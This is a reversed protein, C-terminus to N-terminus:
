PLLQVRYYQQSSVAANTGSATPGNALIDPPLDTWNTDLLNTKSQLRYSQNSISSWTIVMNTNTFVASLIVPASSLVTLVANSSVPHGFSNSVIVSYSGADSLSVSPINYTSSTAGSIPVGDKLWRFSPSTGIAASTFSATTGVQNTRSIPQLTIIPDIVTLTAPLNNTAIGVLNSVTVTYNGDDAGRVNSITLNTTTVGDIRVGNFLAVGDKYWRYSLPGAGTMAVTFSATTGANITMSSPQLMILPTDPLTVTVDAMAKTFTEPFTFMDSTIGGHTYPPVSDFNNDTVNIKQVGDFYVVLNSSQVSLTVTHWNTGVSPLSVQQMPVFSWTTWAEFKVLKLVAAGGASGEPYVWAAYHAGTFPDLRAGIGGGYANTTSFQMRAQVIYDTWAANPCYAYGYSNIASSSLLTGNTVAWTGLLPIWRGFLGSGFPLNLDDFFLYGPPTVMITATAPVSNTQGDLVVFNFSDVGIFAPDPNYTFAGNSVVTATGHAPATLQAVTLNTGGTGPLASALLGPSGANLTSGQQTSYFGSQAVPPLSYRVQVNTVSTGARVKITSGTVRYRNTDTLVNNTFVQLGYFAPSSAQIEVATNTDISGTISLTTVLSNGNTSFAPVVQVNTRNTWWQYIAISNASWIKPNALTYNVYESALSGAPGSGDSPSHSYFNILAGLGFYFDVLAHLSNTNFGDEMAQGIQNGVFVDSVPLSLMPYRKGSTQTSLTWHPFPGLKDDGAIQMGLQEQIQLSGERTANFYPAVWLRVGNSTGLGWGQLDSISNSISALAYAQGNTYGPPNLDLLEDPGWHWYDYSNTTLPPVYVNPNTFGGNHSAITANYNSVARQLSAVTASPNPMNERLEGTCFFYDGRAGRANEYQASAEISNILAPLAEMDHRFMVAADYRYPWASLRTVPLNQAQFAWQIANRVIGYAFMGPAWGGFGRVPQMASDYIFFGKGYQRVLLRPYTDGLAVVSAEGPQVQWILQPLGTPPNAVHNAEPWSIEDASWPMQWTLKGEPIHSILRHEFVATFTNNGTWNTLGPGATHLGMQAGIAFDNRSTGDPNRTFASSGIYLFGGAAVYNTLPGIEDDRIAEAALSIVIPYAPLGSGDLLNGSTINSDGVVTFLTGDSRLMEQISEPMVFYHWNTLWWQSGTTGPGNPTPTNTAPLTELLRTLESDHIAVLPQTAYAGTLSALLLLLGIGAKVSQSFAHARCKLRRNFNKILSALM